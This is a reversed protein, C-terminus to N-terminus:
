REYQYDSSIELREHRNRVYYDSYLHTMTGGALFFDDDMCGNDAVAEVMTVATNRFDGTIVRQCGM